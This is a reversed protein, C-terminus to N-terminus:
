NIYRGIYNLFGILKYALLYPLNLKAVVSLFQYLALPFSM